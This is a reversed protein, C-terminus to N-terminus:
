LANLGSPTATSRHMGLLTLKIIQRLMPEHDTHATQAVLTPHHYAATTTYILRANLDADGDFKAGAEKFLGALQRLLNNLHAIIFPKDLAAAVDFARHPEPDDLARKRKMQYLRVLWQHMRTAPDGGASAVVALAQEIECLWRETVADLLAAKDTFHAYLAAHSVGLEKAVDTIRVKDVGLLRMRALAVDTARTKIEEASLGTRPM